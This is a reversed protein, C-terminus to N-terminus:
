LIAGNNKFGPLQYWHPWNMWIYVAKGVLNSEPVFGWYRSDYSRDRNDGMVFYMNEPVTWEVQQVQSIESYRRIEFNHDDLTQKYVGFEPTTGLEPDYEDKMEAVLEAPVPKGNVSLKKDQYRIVDGPLGIVRKIYDVKPDGPFKFVVVDGRKPEGVSLIKNGLVPLRLGYNFKTVLIFDGIKLTPIMSGSPIQFPEIIFSRIILVILLIPLFSRCEQVGVPIKKLKNVVNVDVNDGAEMLYSDVRAKRKPRFLLYDLLAVIGTTAVAIVLILSFNINGM